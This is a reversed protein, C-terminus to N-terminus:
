PAEVLELDWTYSGDVGSVPMSELNDIYGYVMGDQEYFDDGEQAIVLVQRSRGQTRQLRYYDDFAEAKTTYRISIDLQRRITRQPRFIEGGDAEIQGGTEEAGFSIAPPCVTAAGGIEIATGVIMRGMEIWGLANYPDWLPVFVSGSFQASAAHDYFSFRDFGKMHNRSAAHAWATAAGAGTQTVQFMPGAGDNEVLPYEALTRDATNLMTNPAICYVSIDSVVADLIEFKVVLNEGTDTQYPLACRYWGGGLSTITATGATFDGQDTAAVLITGAALDFDAQASHPGGGETSSVHIRLQDGSVGKLAVIETILDLAPEAGGANSPKDLTQEAYNNTTATIAELSFIQSPLGAPPVKSPDPFLLLMNNHTWSGSASSVSNRLMNRTPAGDYGLVAVLDFGVEPSVLATGDLIIHTSGSITTMRTRESMQLVRLNSLPMDAAIGGSGSMVAGSDLTLDDVVILM